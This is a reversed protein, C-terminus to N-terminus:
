KVQTDHYLANNVEQFFFRLFFFCVFQFPIWSRKNQSHLKKNQFTKFTILKFAPSIAYNFWITVYYDSHNRVNKTSCFCFYDNLRRFNEVWGEYFIAFKNNVFGYFSNSIRYYSANREIQECNFIISWSKWLSHKGELLKRRSLMRNKSSDSQHLLIFHWFHHKACHM